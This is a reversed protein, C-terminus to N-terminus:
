VRFELRHKSVCWRVKIDAIQMRMEKEPLHGSTGQRPCPCAFMM